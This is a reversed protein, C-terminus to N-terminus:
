RAVTTWTAKREHGGHPVLEELRALARGAWTAREDHGDLWWASAMHVLRHMDFFREKDLEQVTQQRETIFAYGVLTGLAKVQQVLSGRPPLLSQPIDIRDICAM